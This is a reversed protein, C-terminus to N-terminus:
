DGHAPVSVENHNSSSRVAMDVLDLINVYDEANAKYDTGCSQQIRYSSM